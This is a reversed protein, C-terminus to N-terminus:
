RRPETCSQVGCLDEPDSVLRLTSEGPQLLVAGRGAEKPVCCEQTDTCDLFAGKEATENASCADKCRGGFASCEEGAFALAPMFLFFLSLFFPFRKM